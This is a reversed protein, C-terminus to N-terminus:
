IHIEAGPRSGAELTLMDSLDNKLVWTEKDGSIELHLLHLVWKLSAEVAPTNAHTAIM